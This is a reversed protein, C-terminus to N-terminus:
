ICHDERSFLCQWHASHQATRHKRRESGGGGGGGGERQKRSESNGARATEGRRRESNRREEERQKEEGGRATEGRRRESNVGSCRGRLARDPLQIVPRPSPIAARHTAHQQQHAPLSNFHILETSKAKQKRDLPCVCTTREQPKACHRRYGDDDHHHHHYTAACRRRPQRVGSV